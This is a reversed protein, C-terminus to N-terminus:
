LDPPISDGRVARATNFRLWAGGEADPGECLNGGEYRQALGHSFATQGNHWIISQPRQAVSRHAPVTTERVPEGRVWLRRTLMGAMGIVMGRESFGGAWQTEGADMRFHASDAHTGDPLDLGYCEWSLHWWHTGMERTVWVEVDATEMGVTVRVRGYGEGMATVLMTDDKVTILPTGSTLRATYPVPGPVPNGYADQPGRALRRLPFEGDMGM